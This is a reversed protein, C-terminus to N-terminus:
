WGHTFVFLFFIVYRIKMFYVHISLYKSCPVIVPLNALSAPVSGDWVQVTTLCNHDVRECSEFVSSGECLGWSCHSICCRRILYTTYVRCRNYNSITELVSPMQFLFLFITFSFLSPSSQFLSNNSRHAQPKSEWKSVHQLRKLQSNQLMTLWSTYRNHNIITLHYETFWIHITLKTGVLYASKALHYVIFLCTIRNLRNSITCECIGLIASTSRTNRHLICIISLFIDFHSHLQRFM